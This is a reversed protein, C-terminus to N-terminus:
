LAKPAPQTAMDRYWEIYPASGDGASRAAELLEQFAVQAMSQIHREAAYRERQIRLREQQLHAPTPVRRHRRVVLRCALSLAALLILLLIVSVQSM